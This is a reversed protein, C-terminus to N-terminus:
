SFSGCLPIKGPYNSFHDDTLFKSITKVTEKMSFPTHEVDWVQPENDGISTVALIAGNNLCEIDAYKDGEEFYVGVGGEVSPTLGKPIFKDKVLIKILEECWFIAVENPADADYGDWGSQLKAFRKLDNNMSVLANDVESKQAVFPKATFGIAKNHENSASWTNFMWTPDFVPTSVTQPTVYNLYSHKEKNNSM